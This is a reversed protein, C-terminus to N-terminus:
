FEGALRVQERWRENNVGVVLLWLLLSLEALGGLVAIGVSLYNALPPYLFTLWSLGALAILAGLVRPLFTSKFILYGILLLFLGDFVLGIGYAQAYLKLFILALARLQDVPLANLDPSRGLLVLPALQFVSAFTQIALGVISFFAALLSLTRSVPRFLQYFLATVAVYCAISILSLAFGLRFSPEHAILNTALAAADRSVAGVGSIGAQRMFFEGLVATLFYLLYIIGTIRARVRPAAETIPQM